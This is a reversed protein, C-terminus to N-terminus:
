LCPLADFGFKMLNIFGGAIIKLMYCKFSNVHEEIVVLEFCYLKTIKLHFFHVRYGFIFLFLMFVIPNLALCLCSKLM